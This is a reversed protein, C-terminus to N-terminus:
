LFSERRPRFFVWGLGVGVLYAFAVLLLTEALLPMAFRQAEDTWQVGAVGPISGIRGNLGIMSGIGQRQFDNAPGSLIATRSLPDRKMHVAVGPIAAYRVMSGARAELGDLYAAGRGLPGHSVWGAALAVVLGILFKVVPSM